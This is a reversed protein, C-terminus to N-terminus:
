PDHSWGLAWFNVFYMPCGDGAGRSTDATASELGLVFFRALYAPPHMTRVADAARQRGQEDPEPPSKPADLPPPAHEEPDEM